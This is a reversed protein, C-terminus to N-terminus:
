GGNRQGIHRALDLGLVRDSYVFAEFKAGAPVDADPALNELLTIVTATDLDDFASQSAERFSAPVPRSQSEAWIAVQRRWRPLTAVARAHVREALDAPEHYRFSLLALRIALPDHGASRPMEHNVPAEMRDKLRADAPAVRVVLGAQAENAWAGSAVLRVDVSGGIVQDAEGVQARMAPPHVGLAAAAREATALPGAVDGAVALATLVQLGRMEAVRALVDAVVLLRLGDAPLAIDAPLEVCVRLLRTRAPRLEVFSGTRADLLRLSGIAM